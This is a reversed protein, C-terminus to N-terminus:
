AMTLICDDPVTNWQDIDDLIDQNAPKANIIKSIISNKHNNTDLIEEKIKEIDTQLINKVYRPENEMEIMGSYRYVAERKKHGRIDLLYKVSYDLSEGNLLYFVSILMYDDDVKNVIIRDFVQKFIIQLENRNKKANQLWQNTPKSENLGHLISNNKKLDRKINEIRDKTLKIIKNFSKRKIDFESLEMVSLLYADLLRENEKKRKELESEEFDLSNQLDTIAKKTIEKTQHTDSLYKLINEAKYIESYLVSEILTINIGCNGCSGQNILTSSCKYVKDGGLVPKYRAFYNRGCKGCKILDKLLYIYKTTINRTGKSKLLTNCFDFLEHPIIVPATIIEGKFRRNGAYIPNRLIDHIQKDTWRVMSSSKPIKFKLVQGDYSKNTRTPINDKNLKNSIVRIGNGNKYLEFIWAIVKAEEKDIVLKKNEDKRYGYPLNKGGGARGDKASKLLGSKSRTKFTESEIHAYEILVQLIINLISNRKGDNNITFQGLSHIYLPIGQETWRDIIERTEKPERGIRSIESTFICDFYKPEKETIQILRDLEPRDKVKKYGSTNEAFIEYNEIGQQKITLELEKVQRTYDQKDITSVRAYIAARKM